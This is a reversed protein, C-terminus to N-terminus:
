EHLIADLHKRLGEELKSKGAISNEYFLCRYGSLDFPLPNSGKEVLLITPKRLAHAYGVEYFVNQNPPTIDAIVIKAEAIGRVIDDLIIGPTFVEGAHHPQLGKGEVVPRIVDAYLGHYPESFQMVVFATGHAESAHAETFEIPGKGFAFLGLRGNPIPGELISDLVPIGDVELLVNQGRVRVILHYPREAVLNTKSGALAVGLFGRGPDSRMITYASSWGALGAGFFEETPSRYGFLIYASTDPSIGNETKPLRVIARAEGESFRIASVCIGVPVTTQAEGESGLYIASGSNFSWRGLIPAWNTVPQDQEKM